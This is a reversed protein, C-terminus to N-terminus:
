PVCLHDSHRLPVCRLRSNFDSDRVSLVPSASPPGIIGVRSPLLKSLMSLTKPCCHDALGQTILVFDAQAAMEKALGDYDKLVVKDGTYLAPM